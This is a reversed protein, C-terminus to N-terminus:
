VEREQDPGWHPIEEPVGVTLAIGSPRDAMAREDLRAHRRERWRCGCEPFSSFRISAIVGGAILLM